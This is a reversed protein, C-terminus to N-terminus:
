DFKEIIEDHLALLLLVINSLFQIFDLVGLLRVDVLHDRKLLFATTVLSHLTTLLNIHASLPEILPAHETPVRAFILKVM